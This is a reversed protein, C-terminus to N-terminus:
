SVSFDYSPDTPNAVSEIPGIVKTIENLQKMLTKVHQKLQDVEQKQSINWKDPFKAKLYWAAWKPNDKAKSLITEVCETEVLAEIQKVRDQMERFQSNSRKM